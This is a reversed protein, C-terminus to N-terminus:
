LPRWGVGMIATKTHFPNNAPQAIENTLYFEALFILSENLSRKIKPFSINLSKRKRCSLLMLDAKMNLCIETSHVSEFKTFKDRILEPFTIKKHSRVKDCVDTTDTARM